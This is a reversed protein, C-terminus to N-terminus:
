IKQVLGAGYGFCFGTSEIGTMFAEPIIVTNIEFPTIYYVNICFLRSNYGDKARWSGVSDQISLFFVAKISLSQIHM